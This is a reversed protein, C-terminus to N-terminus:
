KDNVLAGDRELQNRWRIVNPERVTAPDLPKYGNRTGTVREIHYIALERIVTYDSLLWEMMQQSINPDKLDNENFGWLLQYVEFSPEQPFVKELDVRLNKANDPNNPLWERLGDIAIMRAGEHESRAIAEILEMAHDGNKWTKLALTKAAFEAMQPKEGTVLPTISLWVPQPNDAPGSDFEAFYAKANKRQIISKQHENEVLWNIPDVRLKKVEQQEAAGVIKSTIADLKIETGPKHVLENAEKDTLKLEGDDIKLVIHHTDEGFDEELHQSLRPTVNFGFLSNGPPIEVKWEKNGVIVYLPLPKNAIELASYPRKFILHGRKISIGFEMGEKPPLFECATHSGLTLRLQKEAMDLESRFPEPCAVLQNVLIKSNSNVLYWESDRKPQRILIQDDNTFVLDPIPPIPKPTEPPKEDPKNNDTDKNTEMKTDTSNNGTGTKGTDTGTTNNSNTDNKNLDNKNLDNKNMAIETKGNGTGGINSPNTTKSDKTINGNTSTNNSNNQGNKQHAADVVTTSSTLPSNAKDDIQPVQVNPAVQKKQNVDNQALNINQDNNIANNKFADDTFIVYLWGLGIALMITIPWFRQPLPSEKLYDPVKKDHGALGPQQGADLTSANDGLLADGTSATQEDLEYMRNKTKASPVIPESLVLSLIQHISAVESLYMDHDHCLKEFVVLQEANLSNDIYSAVHNADFKPDNLEPSEVRRKRTVEKIREILEKAVASEQIQQGIEKAQSGKLQDDLYAILTRLTLRM